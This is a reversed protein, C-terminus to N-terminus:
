RKKDSEQERMRELLQHEEREGATRDTLLKGWVLYHLGSMVGVVGLILAVHVFFGGTILIMFGLFFMGVIGALAVTLFTSRKSDQDASM